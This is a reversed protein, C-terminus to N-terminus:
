KSTVNLKSIANLLVDWFIGNQVFLAFRILFPAKPNINLKEYVVPMIVLATLAALTPSSNTTSGRLAFSFHVGLLIGFYMAIQEVISMEAGNRVFMRKGVAVIFKQLDKPFFHM